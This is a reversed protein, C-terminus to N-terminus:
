GSMNLCHPFSKCMQSLTQPFFPLLQLPCSEVIWLCYNIAAFIIVREVFCIMAYWIVLCPKANEHDTIIYVSFILRNSIIANSESLILSSFGLELSQFPLFFCDSAVVYNYKISFRCLVSCSDVHSVSPPRRRLTPFTPLSMLLGWNSCQTILTGGLTQM